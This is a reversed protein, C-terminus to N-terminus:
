ITAVVYQLVSFFHREINAKKCLLLLQVSVHLRLITCVGKMDNAENVPFVDFNLLMFM